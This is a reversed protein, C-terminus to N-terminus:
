TRCVTKDSKTKNRAERQARQKDDKIRPEIGLETPEM